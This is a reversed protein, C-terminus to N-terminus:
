WARVLAEMLAVCGTLGGLHTVEYGHTNETAFGFLAAAPVGGGRRALGPDSGFGSLVAHQVELALGGALTALRRTLGADYISTADAHVLVPRADNAVGYEKVVPVIEVGVMAGAGLTHAAHLVSGGGVEEMSSFVLYVDRAAPAAGLARAVELLVACGGRDDLGHACVFDGLMRPRKRTRELVVKTGAHVGRAALETRSLKADVCALDWTLALRGDKVRFLPSEASVHSAGFGLIAPVATGDDALLDVPGEGWKWPHAGGLPRVRMRGDPEIRKVMLAIEDKHANLLLPGGAAVGERGALHAIVNGAADRWVRGAVGELHAEVVADVEGESGPPGHAACLEDLLALLRGGGGPGDGARGGGAGSGAGDGGEGGGEGEGGIGAAREV